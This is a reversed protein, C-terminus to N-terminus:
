KISKKKYYYVGSGFIAVIAITSIVVVIVIVSTSATTKQELTVSPVESHTSEAKIQVSSQKEEILETTSFFLDEDSETKGRKLVEPSYKIVEFTSKDHLKILSHLSNIDIDIKQTLCDTKNNYFDLYDNDTKDALIISWGRRLFNQSIVSDTLIKLWEEDKTAEYTQGDIFHEIAFNNYETLFSSAMIFNEMNKFQNQAKTLLGDSKLKIQMGNKIKQDIKNQDNQPIKIIDEVTCARLLRLNAVDCNFKYNRLFYNEIQIETDKTLVYKEDSYMNSEDVATFMTGKPIIFSTEVSFSKYSPHMAIKYSLSNDKAKNFTTIMTLRLSGDIQIKKFECSEILDDTFDTCLSKKIDCLSQKFNNVKTVFNNSLNNLLCKKAVPEKLFKAVDLRILIDSMNILEFELHGSEILKRVEEVNLDTETYAKKCYILSSLILYAKSMSKSTYNEISNSLASRIEEFDIKTIISEFIYEFMEGRSTFVNM